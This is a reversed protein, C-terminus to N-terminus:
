LHKRAASPRTRSAKARPRTLLGSFLIDVIERTQRAYAGRRGAILNTMMTGYALDSLVNTIQEVPVRRVRGSAILDRFLLRWRHINAQRHEIFTPKRRNKFAAHEQLLLEAVEPHSDFFKLYSSIAVVVRQLPDEVPDSADRVADRMRCLGREVASLLLEEKSPFHRYVTAKGVGAADAVVQIDTAAYGESAFVRSAADLIEAQRQSRLQPDPRGGRRKKAETASRM